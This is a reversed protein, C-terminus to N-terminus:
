EVTKCQHTHQHMQALIQSNNTGYVTCCSNQWLDLHLCRHNWLVVEGYVCWMSKKITQIYHYGMVIRVHVKSRVPTGFMLTRTAMTGSSTQMQGTASRQKWFRPCRCPPLSPSQTELQGPEVPACGHCTSVAPYPPCAWPLSTVWHTHRSSAPQCPSTWHNPRLVAM